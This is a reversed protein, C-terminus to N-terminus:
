LHGAVRGAADVGQRIRQDLYSPHNSPIYDSGVLAVRDPLLRNVEALMAIFDDNHFMVPDSESWAGIHQAVPKKPWAMEAVVRDVLIQEDPLGVEPDVRMAAQFIIGDRPVRHTFALSQVDIISSDSPPTTALAAPNDVCYGVSVRIIPTYRYDLLKHAAEPVLTYLMREAYRAPAAVILVRTDLVMGNELCISFRKGPDIEGLTSVAMRRMVPANIRGALADVLAGTGGTFAIKGGEVAIEVEPLGIGNLTARFAELDDIPHWMPGSDFVFDGQRISAIGGGLRRKVEILTYAIGLRELECAAALGTLGGGIVVIDRM